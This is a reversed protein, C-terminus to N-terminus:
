SDPGREVIERAISSLKRNMLSSAKRLTAFAEDATLGHAAMLLGIATGIERNSSIGEAMTTAQEHHASAGMAVSAFAALIAGTDGSDATLAGATNSFLNLAGSKRGDVLLRFGAMGRVPTEALVRAALSPWQSATAIDSDLQYADNEIADVCPGDEVEREMADIKAGIEDSAAITRYGKSEKVMISAHDCGEVLQPAADVIARCVDDMGPSSHVIRALDAFSTAIEGSGEPDLGQYRQQQEDHETM